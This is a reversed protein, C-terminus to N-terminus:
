TSLAPRSGAYSARTTYVKTGGVLAFVRSACIGITTRDCKASAWRTHHKTTYSYITTTSYQHVHYHHKLTLAPKGALTNDMYRM